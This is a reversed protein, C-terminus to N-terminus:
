SIQLLRQSSGDSATRFLYCHSLLRLIFGTFTDIFNAVRPIDLLQRTAKSGKGGECQGGAPSGMVPLVHSSYPRGFGEPEM